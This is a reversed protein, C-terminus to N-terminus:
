SLFDRVGSAIARAISEPSNVMTTLDSPNTIFGCECLVWVPKTHKLIYLDPRKVTHEARGPLLACLHTAIARALREGKASTFCVHAGHPTYTSAADMHLSIGCAVNPTSNAERATLSLDSANSRDPFDIIKADYGIDILARKLYIALNACLSHEEYKSDLSRAGTNQAHGIDILITM